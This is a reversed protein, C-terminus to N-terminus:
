GNVSGAALNNVPQAPQVEQTSVSETIFRERINRPLRRLLPQEVFLHVGIGAFLALLIMATFPIAMPVPHRAWLPYIMKATASLVAYHVLYLSYSAEGLLLLFKPFRLKHSRELLMLGLMGIATFTGFFLPLYFNPARNFDNYMCCIVFGFAGVIAFTLGRRSVHGVTLAVLLGIGFLLHLPSIYVLLLQNSPSLLLAAVSALMWLMLLVIGLFRKTLLFSFVAYFMIEHYLTWAVPIITEAGTIPILLFSNFIASAKREFGNGMGPLAFYLPLLMLLIIWYIPYIRRFRKWLYTRLRSPKGIDSRHAHLIVIGSLVFFFDVGSSGFHFYYRTLHWYKALSFLGECHYFVVMLAALGRGVQLSKFIKVENRGARIKDMRTDNKSTM